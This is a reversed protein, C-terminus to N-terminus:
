NKDLVLWGGHHESVTFLHGTEAGIQTLVSTDFKRVHGYVTAPEDEFPVAVVVRRSALRLAEGLVDSGQGPELHELLHIATVTDVCGDPLPVQGADCVLTDLSLHRVKAMLKLLRMAGAVIDSAIVSNQPREALLLPFFGFCSGLDLVVGDPVLRLARAYVPAMDGILSPAQPPGHNSWSQRIKALTNGYFTAWALLPDTMTSRVVGTFVREFVDNGSLWGPTFLEDALLGALDNDLQDPRLLHGVEVHRCVRLLRFHPTRVIPESDSRHSRGDERFVRVLDDAYHGALDPAFPDLSAAEPAAHDTQTM